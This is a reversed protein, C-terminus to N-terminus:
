RERCIAIEQGPYVSQCLENVVEVLWDQMRDFDPMGDLKIYNEDLELRVVPVGANGSVQFTRRNGNVEVVAKVKESHQELVYIVRPKNEKFARFPGFSKNRKPKLVLEAHEHGLGNIDDAIDSSAKFQAARIEKVQADLWKQAAREYSLGDFKLTLRTKDRFMEALGSSLITKVGHGRVNHLALIAEDKNSPSFFLFMRDTVDADSANKDFRHSGTRSDRIKGPVGYQGAHLIGVVCRGSSLTWYRDVSFVTKEKEDRVLSTRKRSELFEELVKIIDVGGVSDLVALRGEDRKDRYNLASVSYLSVTHTAM